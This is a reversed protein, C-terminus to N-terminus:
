REWDPGWEPDIMRGNETALGHIRDMEDDSLEFDFVDFNAKRHEASSAKPIAAVRDQQLHWRLVVQAPSKDHAEAIEQVVDEDLVTGRAIPSYATLFLGHERVVDLVKEQSLHPHYEVQNNVLGPAIELARRLLSPTFNSVGIHRTKGDHQVQQLADLTEELEVEDSPWHLLLLDVYDTKLKRLSEDASAILKRYEYNDMAVKTTLFVADRDVDADRLGQGVEAENEYMQATDIHRYGIDLADAVATRADRGSLQWTGFGLAPVRDDPIDIFLM